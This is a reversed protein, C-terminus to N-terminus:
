DGYFLTREENLIQNIKTIYPIFYDLLDSFACVDDELYMAEKMRKCGGQCLKLYSCSQCIDYPGAESLFDKAEQSQGMEILDKTWINGLLYQRTAYFDCPYIDGNAEVVQQIQCQGNLGCHYVLGHNLYQYLDDILKISIYHGQSFSEFWLPIIAQYFSLFQKASLAYDAQKGVPGICPIFQVFRIQNELIYDFVAQPDEALSPTLVSVINTDVGAKDLREKAALVKNYSAKGKKDIRYTDHIRADLDLSLGLLANERKFFECFDDDILIGNSQFSLHYNIQKDQMKLYDVLQEYFSLGALLPEGGQFSLYLSDGHSLNELSQDILRELTELAMVPHCVEGQRDQKYFCYGCDLNCSSSAPKIFLMEQNM